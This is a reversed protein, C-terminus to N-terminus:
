KCNLRAAASTAPKKRPAVQAGGEAGGSLADGAIARIKRQAEEQLQSFFASSNTLRDGGGSSGGGGFKASAAAGSGQQTQDGRPRKGGHGNAKGEAAETAAAADRVGKTAKGTAALAAKRALKAALVPDSQAKLADAAARAAKAKKGAAKYAQREAAREEATMEGRSRLVGARGRQRAYLEEPARLVADSVALPTVEEMAIAPLSPKVTLDHQPPKPTFHFNTLADLRPFLAAILERAKAEHASLAQAAAGTLGTGSSGGTAAAAAAAEYAEAYIDGLGAKSKETSVDASPKAAAAAAAAAAAPTPRRVPDDFARDSIRRRILDELAVSAEVTAAPALKMAQEYEVPAELLSNAPRKAATVEGKLHWARAGLAADELEAIEGALAAKAREHRSPGRQKPAGDADDGESDEEEEEEHQQQQQEEEEDSGAFRVGKRQARQQTPAEDQEEEDEAVEDSDEDADEEEEEEEDEDSDDDEEDRGEGLGGDIFRDGSGGSEISGAEVGGDDEVDDGDEDSSSGDDEREGEEDEETVRSQGGGRRPGYLDAATPGARLLAALRVAKAAAAAAGKRGTGKTRAAAVAEDDDAELPLAANLDIDSDDSESDSSDSHAKSKARDLGAKERMRALAVDGEDLFREMSGASFGSGTSENGDDVDDEEEDSEDHEEDEEDEEEEDEEEEDGASEEEDSVGRLQKRQTRSRATHARSAGDGESAADGDDVPSAAAREEAHARKELSPLKAEANKLVVKHQLQLEAWIQESDFGDVYLEPLPLSAVGGPTRSAAYDFFQKLHQRLSSALKDSRTLFEEPRKAIKSVFASAAALGEM